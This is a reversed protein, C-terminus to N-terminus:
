YLKKEASGPDEDSQTQLWKKRLDNKSNLLLFSLFKRCCLGDGHQVNQLHSATHLQPSEKAEVERAQLFDGGTRKGFRVPARSRCKACQLELDVLRCLIECRLDRAPCNELESSVAGKLLGGWQLTIVWVIAVPLLTDPRCM